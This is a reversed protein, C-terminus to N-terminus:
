TRWHAEDVDVDGFVIREGKEMQSISEVVGVNEM